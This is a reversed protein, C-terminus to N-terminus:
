DNNINIDVRDDISNDISHIEHIDDEYYVYVNLNQDCKKLKEILEKITMQKGGM